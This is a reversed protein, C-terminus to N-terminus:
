FRWGLGLRYFASLHWSSAWSREPGDGRNEAGIAFDTTLSFGTRTALELGPGVMAFPNTDTRNADPIQEKVFGVVAAAYPALTGAGWYVRVGASALTQAGDNVPLHALSVSVFALRAVRHGVELGLPLASVDSGFADARGTGLAHFRLQPEVWVATALDERVPPPVDAALVAFVILPPLM